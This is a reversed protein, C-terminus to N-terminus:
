RGRINRTIQEETKKKQIVILDTIRKEKKKKRKRKREKTSKSQKKAFDVRGDPLYRNSSPIRSTSINVNHYSPIATPNEV